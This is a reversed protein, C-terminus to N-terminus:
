QLRRHSGKSSASSAPSRPPTPPEPPHLSPPSLTRKRKRALIASRKAEPMPPLTIPIILSPLVAAEPRQARFQQCDGVRSLVDAHINTLGPIHVARYEFRHRIGLEALQRMLHTMRTDSSSSGSIIDAVSTSSDSRLSVRRGTWLAGWTAAAQVIAHLELFAISFSAKSDAQAVSFQQPSWAGEFWHQQWVAGYGRGCADTEVQVVNTDDAWEQEVLLSVGNLHTIHDRWWILEERVGDTLSWSRHSKSAAKMVEHWQMTALQAATFKDAALAKTMVGVREILRRLFFRGPRIVQSAFTLKGLLSQLEVITRKQKVEKVWLDTLRILEAVKRQPLSARMLQTDLQIGLFVLSTIPGETKAEAMPVGLTRCLQLVIPLLARAHEALEFVFLFDDVYHIVSPVGLKEFLYHLAWAFLEWIRGSSRLGFPLVREYFYADLWWFGLLHWDAPRVPVQKYAAEVDLKILLCGRGAKVIATAADSFSQCTEDLSPIGSNVSDGFFPHSLNHIVRVKESDQKPVAGIPSVFLNRMPLDLFPGAKKGAACDAAIIASVKDRIQPTIGRENNRGRVPKSRDGAFEIDAGFEVTRLILDAKDPHSALLGHREMEAKWPATRM